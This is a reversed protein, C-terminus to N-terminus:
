RPIWVRVLSLLKDVDLPKAMYDNAGADLAEEQDQKTAKATIAIIPLKAWETRKRIERMARHGDMEPMMVDMLVLHIPQGGPQISRELAELAERGNRAVVLQAGTPDFLSTLAFVNRVDDEALLIRRGELVTDRHRAQELMARQEAPLTSIVQHLFLTVEDLLREPSKAGKIIVSQAYRRLHEEEELSLERGTYVIIPPFAYRNERSLRDLLSFATGDPLEVDLIMCDFTDRQLKELCEAMSAAEVTKVDNSALLQAVALRQAPHDEVILVRRVKQTLRSELRAFAEELQEPQVPKMLYGVAGLSLAAQMYDYASIVHVPIHRTQIDSKLRDLVALGSHDPLGIDLVVANPSYESALSLAESSTMAVLAQFDHRHALEILVRTFREDDEVILITRRGAKLRERDDDLSASRPRRPAAPQRVPAAEPAAAQSSARPESSQYVEPLIISFTSGVGVRSSLQIQGGL